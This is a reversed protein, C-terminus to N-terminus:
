QNALSPVGSRNQELASQSSRLRSRRDFGSERQEIGIQALTNEILRQGVVEGVVDGCPLQLGIAAVSRRCGSPLGGVNPRLRTKSSLILPQPLGAAVTM